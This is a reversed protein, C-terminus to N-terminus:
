IQSIILKRNDKTKKQKKTVKSVKDNFEEVHIEMLEATTKVDTAKNERNSDTILNSKRKKTKKSKNNAATNETVETLNLNEEESKQDEGRPPHSDLQFMQTIQDLDNQDINM